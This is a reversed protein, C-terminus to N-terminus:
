LDGKIMKNIARHTVYAAKLRFRTTEANNKPYKKDSLGMMLEYPKFIINPNWPTKSDADINMFNVERKHNPTM